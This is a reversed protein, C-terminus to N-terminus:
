GECGMQYNSGCVKSCFIMYESIVRGSYIRTIKRVVPEKILKGCQPCANDPNNVIETASM